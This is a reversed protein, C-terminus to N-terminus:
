SNSNPVTASTCGCRCMSCCGRLLKPCLAVHARRHQRLTRRVTAPVRALPWSAENVVGQNPIRHAHVVGPTHTPPHHSCPSTKHTNHKHTCGRVWSCLLFFIIHANIVVDALWMLAHRPPRRPSVRARPSAQSSTHWSHWMPPTAPPPIPSRHLVCVVHPM